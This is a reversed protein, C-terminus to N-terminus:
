FKRLLILNLNGVIIILNIFCGEKYGKKVEVGNNGVNGLFVM